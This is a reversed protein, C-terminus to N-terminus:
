NDNLLHRLFHDFVARKLIKTLIDATNENSHIYEIRITGDAVKSRLFFERLQIHKTKASLVRNNCIKITSQNDIYVVTPGDQAFGVESLLNRLWVVEKAGETGAVLEAETTSMAQISPLKTKWSLPCRCFTSLYGARSRMKDADNMWSADTFARLEQGRPVRDNAFSYVLRLSKTTRLFRLVRLAAEYLEESPNHMYKACQAVAVAVDPRTLNVYILSGVLARYPKDTKTGRADSCLDASLREKAPTYVKRSNDPDFKRALNDIYLQQSLKICRNVRNYDIHIGVVYTPVGLDKVSFRGQMFVLLRKNYSADNCSVLIDDVVVVVLCYIGDGIKFFLCPDFSSQSLGFDFFAKKLTEHWIRPANRLGYLSKLLLLVKGAPINMGPLPLIYIREDESLEGYLFATNVDMSTLHLGLLACIALFLRITTSSAIPAYVHTFDIGWRQLFGLVVGRSKRSSVSGDGATKVKYHWRSPIVRKNPPVDKRDVVKYTGTKRLASLEREMSAKWESAHACTVADNFTKPTYASAALENVGYCAAFYVAAELDLGHPPIVGGVLTLLTLLSPSSSARAVPPKAPPPSKNNNNNAPVYKSQTKPTKGPIKELIEEVSEARAAADAIAPNAVAVPRNIVADPRAGPPAITAQQIAPQLPLPVQVAAPAPAFDQARIVTVDPAVGTFSARRTTFRVQVAAVVRRNRPLYIRYARTGQDDDYGVMVGPESRTALKGRRKQKDPNYLVHCVVGFPRLRRMDAVRGYRMEYPSRSGPNSTSPLRNILFVACMFAEDWFTLPLASDALFTRVMEMISRISREALGNQSHEYAASTEHKAGIESLLADLRFNMFEPGQDTKVVMTVGKLERRLVYGLRAVSDSVTTLCAGWVWRSYVDVVVFGYYNGTRSRVRQRGTNDCVVVQGFFDAKTRTAAKNNVRAQKGLACATCPTMLRVDAPLLGPILGSALINRMRNVGAHGLCRHLQHIRERKLQNSVSLFMARAPPPPLWCVHYLGSPQRTAIIKCVSDRTHKVCDNEFLLTGNYQDLYASASIITQGANPMYLVDRLGYVEGMRDVTTTSGVGKLCRVSAPRLNTFDALCNHIHHTAGTDFLPNDSARTATPEFFVYSGACFVDSYDCDLTDTLLVSSRTDDVEVGDDSDSESDYPTFDYKDLDIDYNEKAYASDARYKAVAAETTAEMKARRAACAAEEAAAQAARRAEAEERTDNFYEGTGDDPRRVIVPYGLYNYEIKLVYAPATDAQSDEGDAALENESDANANALFSYPDDDTDDPVGIAATANATPLSLFDYASVNSSLANPATSPQATANATAPAHATHTASAAATAAAPLQRQQKQKQQNQKRRKAYVRCESKAHLHHGPLDCPGEKKCKATKKGKSKKKKKKYKRKGGGDDDGDGDSGEACKATATAATNDRIIVKEDLGEVQRAREVIDELKLTTDLLALSKVMSYPDDPLGDIFIIQKLLELLNNGQDIFAQLTKVLKTLRLFGRQVTEEPLLKYSIFQRLTQRANQKTSRLGSGEILQLAHMGAGFECISPDILHASEGVVLSSSVVSYVFANTRVWEACTKIYPSTEQRTAVGSSRIARVYLLCISPKEKFDDYVFEFTVNAAPLEKFGLLRYADPDAATPAAVKAIKTLDSNANAADAVHDRIEDAKTELLIEIPHPFGDTLLDMGKGKACAAKLLLLYENFFRRDIPYRPVSSSTQATSADM